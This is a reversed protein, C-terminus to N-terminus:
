DDDISAYKSKEEQVQQPTFGADNTCTLDVSHAQLEKVINLDRFVQDLVQVAKDGVANLVKLAWHANRLLTQSQVHKGKKPLTPGGHSFSFYYALHLPTNGCQDRATVKAGARILVKVARRDAVVHLPTLGRSDTAQVVANHAILRDAVEACTVYHLPTLGLGDTQNVDAGLDVLADIMKPRCFLAAMHLCGLMKLPSLSSTITVAEDKLMGVLEKSIEPITKDDNSLDPQKCLAPNNKTYLAITVLQQYKLYAKIWVVLNEKKPLQALHMQLSTKANIDLGANAQRKVEELRNERIAQWLAASPQNTSKSALRHKSTVNEERLNSVLQKVSKSEQPKSKCECGGALWVLM